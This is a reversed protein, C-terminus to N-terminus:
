SERCFSTSVVRSDPYVAEAYTCVTIPAPSATATAAVAAVIGPATGTRESYVGDETRVSCKVTTVLPPSENSSLAYGGYVIEGQARVFRCEALPAEGGIGSPPEVPAPPPSVTPLPSPSPSDDLDPVFCQVVNQARVPTLRDTTTGDGLQGAGNDGWTWIEGNEALAASHSSGASVKKIKPLGLVKYPTARFSTTGDGIVGDYNSGWTWVSGDSKLAMVHSGWPNGSIAVVGTLGSVQVPSVSSGNGWSGWRWVTGDAKLAVTAAQMAEIAVVNTLNVVPVPTLRYTAGTGDGLQGFENYGWAVLTGNSKRAVSHYYGADVDVVGSLNPVEIPSTHSTQTGDGLRGLYGWGWSWVRGTQSVALSHFSGASVDVSAPGGTVPMPFSNGLVDPVGTGNQGSSNSGWGWIIGDRLALVHDAATVRDVGDIAEPVAPVGNGQAGATGYRWLTHDSRIGWTDSDSAEVDVFPLCDAKADFREMIASLALVAPTAAIVAAVRLLRNM